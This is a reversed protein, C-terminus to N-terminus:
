IRWFKYLSYKCHNMLTVFDPGTVNEYCFVKFGLRKFTKKMYKLDQEAGNRKHPGETFNAIVLALGQYRRNDDFKYTYKENDDEM